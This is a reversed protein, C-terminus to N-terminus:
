TLSTLLALVSLGGLPNHGMAPVYPRDNLTKIYGVLSKPGPVLRFLRASKPGIVGWVLRYVLLGILGLGLWKHWGMFGQEATWWMACVLVALAWHFTRVTWDWVRVKVQNAAM